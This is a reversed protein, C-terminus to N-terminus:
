IRERPRGITELAVEFNRAAPKYSHAQEATVVWRFPEGLKINSLAFLDDDCNTIVGLDFRQGLQALAAASDAFAPWDAVSGGFSARAAASPAAGFDACTADLSQELVTRYSLWQGNELRSEHRAFAELLHDDAVDILGSAAHRLTALIGAEWDILTGYCDFTLVEIADFDIGNEAM